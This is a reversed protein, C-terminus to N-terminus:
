RVASSLSEADADTSFSRFPGDEKVSGYFESLMKFKFEKVCARLKPLTTRLNIYHRFESLRSGHLRPQDVDIEWPHLYILVAKKEKQNIRRIAAKTLLLPFLRFYGGGAVPINMGLLSYTSPPFEVIEGASRKITYPFRDAEPFGYRDHHIPFISSDYLFGMEILIDLAWLTKKVISYSTARYGIVPKGTIDELAQKAMRVDERFEDKTLNYILRHNYGHSAIEHGASAIRRVLGPHREAVWGLIFFTAKLGYENLLELLQVTNKEVRSEYRNWDEFKVENAFGSVMYYDEVDITLANFMTFDKASGGAQANRSM